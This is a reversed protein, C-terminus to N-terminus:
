PAPIGIPIWVERSPIMVGDQEDSLAWVRGISGLGRDDTCGKRTSAGYADTMRSATVSTCRGVRVGGVGGPTASCADGKVAVRLPDLDIRYPKYMPRRCQTGRGIGISRADKRIGAHQLYVVGPLPSQGKPDGGTRIQGSNSM